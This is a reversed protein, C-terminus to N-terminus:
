SLRLGSAVSVCHDRGRGDPRARGSRAGTVIAARSQPHTSAICSALLRLNMAPMPLPTMNRTGVVLEYQSVRAM